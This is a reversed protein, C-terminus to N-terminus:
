PRKSDLKLIFFSLRVTITIKQMAPEQSTLWNEETEMPETNM